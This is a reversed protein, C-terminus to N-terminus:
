IAPVTENPKVESIDADYNEAEIIEVLERFTTGAISVMYFRGPADLSIHRVHALCSGIACVLSNLADNETGRTFHLKLVINEKM